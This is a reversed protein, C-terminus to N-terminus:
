RSFLLSKIFRHLILKTNHSNCIIFITKAEEKNLAVFLAISILNFSM